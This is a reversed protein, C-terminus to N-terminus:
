TGKNHGIIIYVRYVDLYKEENKAAFLFPNSSLDPYIPANSYAAAVITKKTKTSIYYPLEKLFIESTELVTLRKWFLQNPLNMYFKLITIFHVFPMTNGNKNSPVPKPVPSM